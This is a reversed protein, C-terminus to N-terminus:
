RLWWSRGCRGRNLLYHCRRWRWERRLSAAPWRSPDAHRNQLRVPLSPRSRSPSGDSLTKPETHTTRSDNLAQRYGDSMLWMIGVQCVSRVARDGGQDGTRHQEAVLVDEDRVRELDVVREDGSRTRELL